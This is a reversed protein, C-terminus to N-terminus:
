LKLSNMGSEILEYMMVAGEVIKEEDEPNEDAYRNLFDVYEMWMNHTLSGYGSFYVTTHSLRQALIQGGMTSGELVYMFGIYTAFELDDNLSFEFDETNESQSLHEIDEQLMNTRTRADIDIGYDSWTHFSQAKEEVKDHIKKLVYLYDSYAKKDIEGSALLKAVPTAEIRDHMFKTQLKIKTHFLEENKKSINKLM